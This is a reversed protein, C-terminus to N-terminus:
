CLYLCDVMEGIVINLVFKFIFQVSMKILDDDVSLVLIKILMGGGFYLGEVNIM